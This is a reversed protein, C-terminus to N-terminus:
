PSCFSSVKFAPIFCVSVNSNLPHVRNEKVRSIRASFVFTLIKISGVYYSFGHVQPFPWSSFLRGNAPLPPGTLTPKQLKIFFATKGSKQYFQKKQNNKLFNSLAMYQKLIKSTSKSSSNSKKIKQEAKM